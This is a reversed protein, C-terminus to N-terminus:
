LLQPVPAFFTPLMDPVPYEDPKVQLSLEIAIEPTESRMRFPYKNSYERFAAMYRGAQRMLWVPTREADEGRAVRLLLPDSSSAQCVARSKSAQRVARRSQVGLCLPAHPSVGQICPETGALHAQM